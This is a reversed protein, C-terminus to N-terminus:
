RCEVMSNDLVRALADSPARVMAFPAVRLVIASEPEPVTEKSVDAVVVVDVIVAALSSADPDPVVTVTMVDAACLKLTPSETVM